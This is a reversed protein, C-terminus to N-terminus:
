TEILAENNAALEILEQQNFFKLLAMEFPLGRVQEQKIKGRVEKLKPCWEWLHWSYEVDEGCLACQIDGLENWHRLHRKFLGHGTVIQTLKSLEKTSLLSERQKSGVETIFLKSVVHRDLREWRSQWKGLIIKRVDSKVQGWCITMFPATYSMDVAM